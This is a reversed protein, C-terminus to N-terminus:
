DATASPALESLDRELLVYGAEDRVVLFGALPSSEPAEPLPLRPIPLRAAWAFGNGHSAAFLRLPERHTDNGFVDVLVIEHGGGVVTPRPPKESLTVSRISWVWRADVVGTVAISRLRDPDGRAAEDAAPAGAIPPPDDAAVPVGSESDDEPDAPRLHDFALRYHYDSVFFRPSCYSMTDAFGDDPNVFRGASFFWGRRPGIGSDDYPYGENANGAGCGDRPHRLNLNHGVEHVNINPTCGSGVSAAISVHSGLFAYGCSSGDYPYKYVGHWYEDGDAEANWLDLLALTAEHQDWTESEFDFTEGVEASYGDAVPFFDYIHTMYTEAVISEPEGVESRIPVFVIRFRDLEEAAIGLDATNDEEDTERLIDAPDVELRTRNAPHYLEGPIGFTHETEWLRSETNAPASTRPELLATPDDGADGVRVSIGPADPTDHGIRAVLAARRGVLTPTHVQWGDTPRWSRAMPGQYHEVALLAANGDSCRVRWTATAVADGATVTIGVEREGAGPCLAVLDSEVEEDANATGSSPCAFASDDDLTISYPQGTSSSWRFSSRAPRRPEGDADAPLVPIRVTGDASGSPTSAASQACAARVAVSHSAPGADLENEARVTISYAVGPVLGSLVCGASGTAATCTVRAAGLEPVAVVVYREVPAGGDGVAPIPTWTVSISGLDAAARVDSPALVPPTPVLGLNEYFAVTDDHQSAALVDADGDGDM